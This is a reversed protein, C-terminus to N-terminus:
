KTPIIYFGASYKICRPFKTYLSVAAVRRRFDCLSGHYIHIVLFPRINVDNRQILFYLHRSHFPLFLIQQYRKMYTIPSLSLNVCHPCDMM